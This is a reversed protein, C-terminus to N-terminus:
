AAIRRKQLRLAIGCAWMVLIAVLWGLLLGNCARSLFEGAVQPTFHLLLGGILGVFVPRSRALLWAVFAGALIWLWAMRLDDRWAVYRFTIGAPTHHGRFGFSRGSDPLALPIPLLGSLAENRLKSQAEQFKQDDFDVNSKKKGGFPGNQPAEPAPKAGDATEELAKADDVEGGLAPRRSGREQASTRFDPAPTRTTPVLAIGGEQGLPAAAGTVASPGAVPSPMAYETPKQSPPPVKSSATQIGLQVETGQDGGPMWEDTSKYLEQAAAVSSEIGKDSSFSSWIGAIAKLPQGLRVALEQGLSKTDVEFERVLNGDFDRYSYGDPLHLRWSSALVPIAKDIGPPLLSIRGAAALESGPTEYIVEVGIPASEVTAPLQIRLSHASRDAVPKVVEGQVALTLVTATEPLKLLFYQEGNSRLILGTRRRETGDDSVVSDLDLSDIVLGPLPAVPHRTGELTLQWAAGRWSYAAIVRHRPSYDDVKPISLTDREDLGQARISLETDTNAEIIWTGNIRGAGPLGLAPLGTQFRQEPRAGPDPTQTTLPLSMHFRLRPQGSLEEHFTLTWEGTLPQHTKEAILPSDFRLFGSVGAPASVVLSRIGSNRVDLEIQGEVECTHLLPLAYATVAGNVEAARRSVSIGLTFDLGRSWALRGEVPVGMSALRRPDAAELGTASELRVHFREDYNLAVYGTVLEPGEVVASGFDLKLPQEGLTFWGPPDLRSELLITPPRDAQLGAPWKIEVVDSGRKQWEPETGNALKVRTIEEGGPLKLRTVFLDGEKPLIRVSRRMQVADRGLTIQTNLDAQFRPQLREFQVEPPATLIPFQFGAVFGPLQAANAPLGDLTQVTLGATNIARVRVDDATLIAFAGSARHVGEVTPFPLAAALPALPDAEAPRLPNPPTETVLRLNTEKLDSSTLKALLKSGELTWDQLDPGELSLVRVEAPLNITLSQPVRALSSRLILGLDATVQVPDVRYLYSCTQLVAGGVLASIDKARWTLSVPGPQVPLAFTHTLMGGQGGATRIPLASHVTFREPLDLIFSSAPVGPSTLTLSSGSPQERVPFYLQAAIKRLGPGRILLTAPQQPAVGAAQAQPPAELLRIATFEDVKVGGLAASDVPLALESWGDKLDTLGDVAFEADVMVTSGILRGRFQASKLVAKVPPAPRAAPKLVGADRLLTEYEDRTLLIAKPHQELIRAIDKEPLWRERQVPAPAPAEDAPAPPPAVLLASLVGWLVRTLCSRM